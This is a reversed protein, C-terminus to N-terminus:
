CEDRPEALVAQRLSRKDAVIKALIPHADAKRAQLIGEIQFRQEETVGLEAKLVIKRGIEGVVLRGLPSRQWRADGALPGANANTLSWIAGACLMAGLLALAITRKRM